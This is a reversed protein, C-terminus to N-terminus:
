KIVNYIKHQLGANVAEVEVEVEVKVARGYTRAKFESFTEEPEKINIKSELKIEELLGYFNLIAHIYDEQWKDYFNRTNVQKATVIEEKLIVQRTQVYTLKCEFAIQKASKM